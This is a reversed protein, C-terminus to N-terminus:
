YGVTFRRQIHRPNEIEDLLAVALDQTSIDGAGEEYPLVQDGGSRYRGTREGPEIRGASPSLYTWNRDSLRCLDLVEAHALVVKRYEAPVHLVDTLVRAFGEEDDLLRVGPASELSGGGGVVVLRTAPHRELAKLLASATAPLVDAHAIQDAIDGGPAIANVVVDLGAVARSAGEPDGADAVRWTAGGRDAPVRAADRTVATVAHGRRLGEAVVARGILGTAGLVGIDM